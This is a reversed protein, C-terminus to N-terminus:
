QGLNYENWIEACEEEGDNYGDRLYKKALNYKEEKIYLLGLRCKSEKDGAQIAKKFMEEAKKYDQLIGEGTLYMNGLLYGAMSIAMKMDSKIAKQAYYKAKKYNPAITKLMIGAGEVYLNALLADAM